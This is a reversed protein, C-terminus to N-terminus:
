ELTRAVRLGIVVGYAGDATYGHWSNKLLQVIPIGFDGGRLIRLRDQAGTIDVSTTWHGSPDVLPGEDYPAYRDNCWEQVNGIMDHLGWGNADKGAVPHAKGGSNGCYWGMPEVAPQAKECEEVPVVDGLNFATSTGARSAYEWEYETPLRYGHCDYIPFTTTRVSRCSFGAGVTGSCDSLDYCRELDRRESMRNAFALADFFTVNVLPCQAETCDGWKDPNEYQTPLELGAEQWAARTVETQGLEFAHTLTVQTQPTSRAASGWEDRPAGIIFCGPEIRCFGGACNAAVQPHKCGPAIEWDNSKETQASSPSPAVATSSSTTTEATESPTRLNGCAANMVGVCAVVVRGCSPLCDFLRTRRLGANTM